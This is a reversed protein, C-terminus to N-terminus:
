SSRDEGTSKPGYVMTPRVSMAAVGRDAAAIVIRDCEAKRPGYTAMSDDAAYEDDFSHLPTEAERKPIDDRAYVGGSSVYVYADVDAFIETASRVDDPHFAACDIVLHPEIRDCAAELTEPEARDGDLYTIPEQTASPRDRTGRSFVTVDYGHELLEYATHRGIFGTGGIVLASTM